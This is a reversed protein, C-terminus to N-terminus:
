FLQQNGQTFLLQHKGAACAYICTVNRLRTLKHDLALLYLHHLRLRTRTYQKHNHNDQQYVGDKFNCNCSDTILTRVRRSFVQFGKLKSLANEPRSFGQFDRSKMGPGQFDKFKKRVRMKLGRFSWHFYDAVWTMDYLRVNNERM